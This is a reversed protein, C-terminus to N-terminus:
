DAPDLYVILDARHRTGAVLEANRQDTGRARAAAEAFARGYALHRETLRALRVQEDTELFWVEDLLKRVEAWPGSGVLLYNGETIVMPLDPEVPIAGAIAEELGRDFRPAWVVEPDPRRLRRLLWRYGAVDFTDPAGKRAHRGLRHLEAEALHFGDMPVLVAAPALEGVLAAAVTSKGVGPAGALGLLQRRGTGLM